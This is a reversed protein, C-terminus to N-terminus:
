EVKYVEVSEAKGKVSHRGMLQLPVDTVGLRKRTEGSILTDTGLEKNLSQLRSALNVTDGFMSYTRRQESGVNGGLDPKELYIQFE